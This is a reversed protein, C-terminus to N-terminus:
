ECLSKNNFELMEARFKSALNSFAIRIYSKVAEKDLKKLKVGGKKLILECHPYMCSEPKHVVEFSYLDAETIPIDNGGKDKPQFNPNPFQLSTVDAVLLCAIELGRMIHGEKTNFLVDTASGEPNLLESNASQDVWHYPAIWASGYGLDGTVPTHRIFMRDAQDIFLVADRGAKHLRTPIGPVECTCERGEM